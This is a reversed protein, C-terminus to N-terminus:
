RAIQRKYCFYIKKDTANVLSAAHHVLLFINAVKRCCEELTNSIDQALGQEGNDTLALLFITDPNVPQVGLYMIAQISAVREKIIMVIGSLQDHQESTIITSLKYITPDPVQQVLHSTAKDDIIPNDKLYPDGSLRQYM